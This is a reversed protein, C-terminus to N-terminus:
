SKGHLAKFFKRLRLMSVVFYLRPLLKLRDSINDLEKIIAINQKIGEVRNVNSVGNTDFVAIPFELKRFTKNEKWLIKFLKFDASMSYHIDYAYDKLCSTRIFASQHCFFMRHANHPMEAEKVFFTGDSKKKIVSGYVVDPFTGDLLNIVATVTDKAAFTDGANMFICYDGSAMRVGKNMADFIGRDKESVSKSVVSAYRALVQPTLDTSGGDVIVTEICPYDQEEISKLTKELMSAANLCVTIVSIIPHSDIGKNIKNTDM